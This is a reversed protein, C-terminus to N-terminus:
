VHDWLSSIYAIEAHLASTLGAPPVVTHLKKNRIDLVPFECDRNRPAFEEHMLHTVIDIRNKSLTDAKFYLKIVHRTNNIILGLEPNVSVTFDGGSQWESHPPHFCESEKRGWWSTYAKALTGYNTARKQDRVSKATDLVHSKGLNASHSEVTAERLIKYFDTAPNYDESLQAKIHRVCNVKPTGAKSVVDVLQTLTLTPM